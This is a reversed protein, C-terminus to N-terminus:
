RVGNALDVPGFSVGEGVPDPKRVCSLDAVNDTGANEADPGRDAAAASMDEQLAGRALVMEGGLGACAFHDDPRRWEQVVVTLLFQRVLEHVGDSALPATGKVKCM